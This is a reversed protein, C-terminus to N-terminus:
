LASIPGSLNKFNAEDYRQQLNTFLQSSVAVDRELSANELALRPIGRM